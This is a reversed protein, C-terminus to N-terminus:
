IKKYRRLEAGFTSEWTPVSAGTNSNSTSGKSYSYGGFSESQFPSMAESDVSGYKEQWADIRDSLDIVEKPVAMLWVTGNFTSENTLSETSGYQHVGDNFVSGMLRYYQNTQIEMTGDYVLVGNEVKFQGRYVPQGYNFWNKLYLCLSTLM